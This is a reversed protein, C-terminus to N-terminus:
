KKTIVVSQTAGNCPAQTTVDYTSIVFSLTHEGDTLKEYLNAPIAKGPAILDTQFLVTGNEEIVYKFYVTNEEPNGLNINPSAKTVYLNAYGPIETQETKAETDTGKGTTGDWNKADAVPLAATPTAAPGPMFKARNSWLVACGALILLLLLLIFPLPSGAVRVYRGDETVAYGKTLFPKKKKAKLETGDPSVACGKNEDAKGQNKNKKGFYVTGIVEADKDDKSIEKEFTRKTFVTIRQKKHSNEDTVAELTQVEYKEPGPEADKLVFAIMEKKETDSMEPNGGNHKHAPM